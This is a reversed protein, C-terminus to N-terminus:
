GGSQALRPDAIGVKERLFRGFWKSWQTSLPRGELPRLALWLPGDLEERTDLLSQRYRLLGIRELEPHVPAKRLSSATKVERGGREHVDFVWAGTHEDQCLDRVRLGVIEELRM